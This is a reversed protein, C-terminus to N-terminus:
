RRDRCSRRSRQRPSAPPPSSNLPVLSTPGPEAPLLVPTAEGLAKRLSAHTLAGSVPPPLMWRGDKTIGIPVVDYKQPDLSRLVAAASVLSVEHESSRGGFLVGVRLKAM